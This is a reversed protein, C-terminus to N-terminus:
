RAFWHTPRRVAFGVGVFWNPGVETMRKGARVDIQANKGVGHTIGSNAIWSVKGGKEWPSFGFVEWYAGFGAKLDHGLSWSAATQLFRGNNETLSSYNLNGGLSFGKPLDRSWALKITPDYGLSSFHENRSPLSLLPIISFGPRFRGKQEFIAIKAAIETDARGKFTGATSREMVFGDSGLRLEIRRTLGIRVLMEPTSLSHVDGERDLTIGHETQIIGKGAVEVSETYDPRDTILDPLERKPTEAHASFAVALTLTAFTRIMRM